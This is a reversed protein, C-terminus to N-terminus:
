VENRRPGKIMATLAAINEDHSRALLHEPADGLLRLMRFTWSDFTRISIHRLEEVLREDTSAIRALRDTLTRVASRSFSLVLIQAPSIDSRVLKALRLAATHTKGTGPGAAVLIRKAPDAEIVIRQQEDDVQMGTEDAM